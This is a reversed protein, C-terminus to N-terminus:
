QPLTSPLRALLNNITLDLAFDFEAERNLRALYPAAEAVHPLGSQVLAVRRLAIGDVDTVGFTTGANVERLVTGIVTALFTRVLHVAEEAHFGAARLVSLVAEVPALGAYSALQRTLVLTAAQPHRLAAARFARAIARLDNGTEGTPPPIDMGGLINEAVADLLGDKGEVHNYLSKADVGLQRAVVRM